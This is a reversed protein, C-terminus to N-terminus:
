ECPVFLLTLLSHRGAQRAAPWDLPWHGFQPCCWSRCKRLGAGPSRVRQPQRRSAHSSSLAWRRKYRDTTDTSRNLSAPKCSHIGKAIKRELFRRNRLLRQKVSHTVISASGLIAFCFPFFHRWQQLQLTPFFRRQTTKKNTKNKPQGSSGSNTPPFIRKPADLLM